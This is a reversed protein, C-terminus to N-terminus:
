KNTIKRVEKEILNHVAENLEKSEGIFQRQPMKISLKTKKTLALNKWTKAEKPAAAIKAKKQEKTDGKAIGAGQFFKAWAFRRMKPTVTPHLTEGNNHAAAYPVDNHIKVRNDSPTYQINSFLHNRGSLLTEYGASTGKGSQRQSKKWPKLGGNVFGGKLFNNQFQRKALNGVKIPLKRRALLELQKAQNALQKTLEETTM